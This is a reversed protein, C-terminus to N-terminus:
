HILRISCHGLSTPLSLYSQVHLSGFPLGQGTTVIVQQISGDSVRVSRRLGFQRKWRQRQAAQVINCLGTLPEVAFEDGILNLRAYSCIALRNGAPGHVLVAGLENANM